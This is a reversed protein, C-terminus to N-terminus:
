KVGLARGGSDGVAQPMPVGQCAWGSSHTSPSAYFCTCEGWCHQTTLLSFVWDSRAHLQCSSSVWTQRSVLPLLSYCSSTFEAQLDSSLILMLFFSAAPSSLPLSQINSEAFWSVSLSPPQHYLCQMTFCVTHEHSWSTNSSSWRFVGFCCSGTPMVVPRLCPGAPPLTSGWRNLYTCPGHSGQHLRPM